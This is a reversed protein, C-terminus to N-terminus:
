SGAQSVTTLGDFKHVKYEMLISEIETRYEGLTEPDFNDRGEFAAAFVETKALDVITILRCVRNIDDPVNSYGYDYTVRLNAVSDGPAADTNVFKLGIDSRVIYDESRGETRTNWDDTDTPKAENVEVTDVSDVPRNRLPYFENGYGTGDYIEDTVTVVGDFTTGTKQDITKTAQALKDQVLSDPVPAYKYRVTLDVGDSGSWDVEGDRLDVTYDSTSQVTGSSDLVIVDQDSGLESNQATTFAKQVLFKNSLEMTDGGNVSTFEESAENLAGLEDWVELATAYVM